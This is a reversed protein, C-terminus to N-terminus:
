RCAIPELFQTARHFRIVGCHFRLNGVAGSPLAAGVSVAELLQRKYHAAITSVRCAIAGNRPEGWANAFVISLCPRYGGCSSILGGYGNGIHRDLTFQAIRGVVYFSVSPVGRSCLTFLIREYM